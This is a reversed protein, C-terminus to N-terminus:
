LYLINQIIQQKLPLPLIVNCLIPEFKFCFRQGIKFNISGIHFTDGTQETLTLVNSLNHRGPRGTLHRSPKALWALSMRRQLSSAAIM